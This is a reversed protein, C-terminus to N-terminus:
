ELALQSRRCFGVEGMKCVVWDGWPLPQVAFRMLSQMIHCGYCRGPLTRFQMVDYAWRGEECVVGEEAMDAGHTLAGGKLAYM